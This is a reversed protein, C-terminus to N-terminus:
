PHVATPFSVTLALGHPQEATISLTGHNTKTLAAAIPLGLGSGGTGRASEGRFFRTTLRELESDPVGVGNDAVTVSVRHAPPGDTRPVAATGPRLLERRRSGPRFPEPHRSDPRHQGLHHPAPDADPHHPDLHHPDTADATVTIRTHAGAGAYRCANSLAVDLIQALAAAPVAAAAAAPVDATLTLGAHDFATQWADVRDRVVQVADCAPAAAPDFEAGEAVALSLLDDLLGTLREVERGAGRFTAAAADPIAPELSDLRITLAALPNRMAHATDAILRHQARISDRVAAAMTDVSEAVARVEPPGGYRRTMPAAARPKPLSATLATVADSLRALPRLVWRSVVLALATFVAMALLAGAAVLLWVRTIDARAHATSAVIVVAGNVQAGTGVPRAILLEEPGWPALRDVLPPRQNRRAEVATAVLRPDDLDAGANVVPEGRADVILVAEGYLERYRLAESRLARADGSAAATDALTAFRDADGTRGLILRQTSSTAATVCLPIAFALVALTAFVTLAILLRRRM